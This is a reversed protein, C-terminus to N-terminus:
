WGAGFGSREVSGRPVAPLTITSTTMSVSPFIAPMLTGAAQTMADVFGDDCDDLLPGELGRGLVALRYGALLLKEEVVLPGLMETRCCLAYCQLLTDLGTSASLIERASTWAARSRRRSAM